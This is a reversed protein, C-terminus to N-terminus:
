PEDIGPPRQDTSRMGRRGATSRDCYEETAKPLEIGDSRGRVSLTAQGFLKPVVKKFQVFRETRPDDFIVFAGERGRELLMNLHFRVGVAGLSEFQRMYRRHLSFLAAVLAAAAAAFILLGKVFEASV